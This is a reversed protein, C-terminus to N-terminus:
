LMGIYWRYWIVFEEALQLSCTGHITLTNKAGATVRTVAQGWRDLAGGLAIKEKLLLEAVRCTKSWNWGGVGAACSRVTPESPLLPKFSYNPQFCNRLHVGNGRCMYDLPWSINPTNTIFLDYLDAYWMKQLSDGTDTTFCFKGVETKERVEHFVCFSLCNLFINIGATM